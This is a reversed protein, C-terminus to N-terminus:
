PGMMGSVPPFPIEKRKIIGVFDKRFLSIKILFIIM